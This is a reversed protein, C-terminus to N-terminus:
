TPVSKSPRGVASATSSARGSPSRPTTRVRASRRLRPTGLDSMVAEARCEEGCCSAAITADGEVESAASCSWESVDEGLDM